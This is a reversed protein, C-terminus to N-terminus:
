GPTTWPRTAAEFLRIRTDYSWWLSRDELEEASYPVGARELTREVADEGAHARVYRM